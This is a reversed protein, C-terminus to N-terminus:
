FGVAIATPVRTCRGRVGRNSRQRDENFGFRLCGLAKGVWRTPYGKKGSVCCTMFCSIFFLPVFSSKEWMVNKWEDFDGSQRNPQLCGPGLQLFIPTCEAINGYKPNSNM